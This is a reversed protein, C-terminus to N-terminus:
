SGGTPQETEGESKPAAQAADHHKRRISTHEASVIEKLRLYENVGSERRGPDLENLDAGAVCMALYDVTSSLLSLEVTIQPNEDIEVWDYEWDDFYGEDLNYKIKRITADKEGPLYEPDPDELESLDFTGTSPNHGENTTGYVSVTFWQENAGDEMHDNKYTYYVVFSGHRFYVEPPVWASPM